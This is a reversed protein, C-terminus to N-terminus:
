PHGEMARPLANEVAQWVTTRIDENGIESVADELFARILMNRAEAEPIGRARLYFMSDADLDGVAAGHACKVDDAFIELEPKLDAEARPGLLLAKATQRSDSGNAGQAVTVKGQYVARSKGGAVNKFLQTSRTNGVAHRVHTTVDAHAGDGLVSVGALHAEAGEGDLAIHLETRSIKAGFNALHCRYIANKACRVAITEVVTSPLNSASRVHTLKAGAGLVIEIGVNLVGDGVVPTEFLTLEALEELVILVRFNGVGTMDFSFAPTVVKGAAVRVALFGNAYATAADFMASTYQTRGFNSEVWEPVPEDPDFDFMEVQSLLGPGSLGGGPAHSTVLDKDDLSGRLDTYKWDELRRNPIGVSAFRRQAERRRSDMWPLGEGPLKQQVASTSSM